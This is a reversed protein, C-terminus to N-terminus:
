WNFKLDIDDKTNFFYAMGVTFSTKRGSQVVQASSPLILNRGEGNTISFRSNVPAIFSVSFNYGEFMSNILPIMNQDINYRSLDSNKFVINFQGSNNRIDASSYKGEPDIIMLLTKLNDYDVIVKIINDQGTESMSFSSLSAGDIRALTRRWDNEGVPITLWNENGDLSGINGLMKSIKYEIFLKGSGGSNLQIDMSLGLCSNFTLVIVTLFIILIKKEASCKM